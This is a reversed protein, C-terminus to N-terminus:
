DRDRGNLKRMFWGINKGVRNEHEVRLREQYEQYLEKIKKYSEWGAYVLFSLGALLTKYHGLGDLLGQFLTSLEM